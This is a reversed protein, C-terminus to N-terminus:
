KDATLKGGRGWSDASVEQIWVDVAEAPLGYAEVFAETIKKVLERKM